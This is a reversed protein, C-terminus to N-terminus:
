PLPLSPRDQLAPRVPPNQELSQLALAIAREMQPDKGTVFDQPTIEIEEDPDTGYNEVGWGVDKFWFSYQPQTTIAGDALANMMNIGIVGGWTRKGLLPGLGTLKFVHSFIDGDSGAFQNTICIMPGHQACDPYVIPKGWRPQDYGLPKRSLKEILLQSVHGGGNYRVDVILGDRQSETHWLRHFEGFGRAGMDPIHLYGIRGGTAKLVTQRNNEVWERYRAQTESRLTKIVVNREAGSATIIGLLVECGAQNLLLRAPSLSKSVRRGNVSVIRDSPQINVGPSRLPSDFGESGATGAVVHRVLYSDTNSDYALDAGLMGLPYSPERRYDGGFEYAHSTSLEGQMEWIIDSFEFRTAIRDLLPAYRDWVKDWDVGSLNATWFFEKQMQWAERAMQKWELEPSIMLRIRNLDVLGSKKGPEGGAAPDLKKGAPLVRVTKDQRLLMTKAKKNLTFYHVDTAIQESKQDAFDYVHLTGKSEDEFLDSGDLAGRIPETLLLVKGELGAIQTYKGEPMPFTVVRELIGELEIQVDPVIEEKGDEPEAGADPKPKEAPPVLFPSPTNAQLTILCPKIGRPFGLDFQLSDYVPNFERASLFYLYAGKPDFAPAYDSLIPRTVPHTTNKTRNWLRIESQSPAASFSYAAWNGDPSWCIGHMGSYDSKDVIQITEAELDICLLEMRHNALLVRPADPAIALATPRGIDLSLARTEEGQAHIELVQIGNSDTVTLLRKEDPLWQAMKYRCPRDPSGVEEVPGNFAGMTFSRGRATLAIKQETPHLVCNELYKEADVYKRKRQTRPSNCVINLEKNTGAATDYVFLDAGAQYVITSKHCSAFRAYYQSHTTHKQLNGADPTVSYLNAIGEHDSLFYIRSNIWLPRVPNGNPVQMREFSGTGLMDVWIEGATGGRYRKWRASDSSNRGIVMRNDPGVSVWVAPGVPFIEPLADEPSISMIVSERFPQSHTTAFLIKSGDPTWGIVTCASGLYTLRRAEGGEAPMLYVEDPGEERSSFALWRGDPSFHPHSISGQNATLRIATGGDVGVQWLDEETCFVVRDNHLAPYRYYGKTSM